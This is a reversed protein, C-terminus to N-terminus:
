TVMAIVKTGARHCREVLEPGPDGLGISLVEVREELIVDLAAPILDPATRPRSSAPPLGLAERAPALAAHVAAIDDDALDETPSPARLEPPLLLNVGFPAATRARIAEIGERVHKPPLLTASLI